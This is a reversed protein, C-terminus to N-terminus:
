NCDGAPIIHDTIDNHILELNTITWVGNDKKAKLNLDGQGEAGQITFSLEAHGGSGNLNINGNILRGPHLPVGIKQQVCPSNSAESLAMNYAVSHHFGYEITLFIGSFFLCFAAVGALVIFVVGRRSM